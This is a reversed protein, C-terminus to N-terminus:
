IWVAHYALHESYNPSPVSVSLLKERGEIDTVPTPFWTQTAAQLNSSSWRKRSERGKQTFIKKRSKSRNSSIVCPLKRKSAHITISGMPDGKLPSQFSEVKNEVCCHLFFCLIRKAGYDNKRSFEGTVFSAWSSWVALWIESAWIMYIKM